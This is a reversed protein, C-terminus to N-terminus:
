ASRKVCNRSKDTLGDPRHLCEITKQKKNMVVGRIARPRQFKQILYIKGEKIVETFKTTISRKNKSKFIIGVKNKPFYLNWREGGEM